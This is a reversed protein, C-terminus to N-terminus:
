MDSLHPPAPLETLGCLFGPYHRRDFSSLRVGGGGGGEYRM